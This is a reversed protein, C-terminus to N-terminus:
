ANRGGTLQHYLWARATRWERRVTRDSVEWITAIESESLGAFFRLEILEAARPDRDRMGELAEDLALLDIAREHYQAVADHLAVQQAQGGRKQSRRRRAYDVLISRMARAALIVLTRGDTRRLACNALRLYAEHVLATPQLTHDSPQRALLRGAIARMRAYMGGEDSGIADVAPRDNPEAAESVFLM